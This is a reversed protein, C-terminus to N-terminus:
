TSPVLRVPVGRSAAVRALAQDATALAIGEREALALYVCDPLKHGLMLSLRLAKDILFEDEALRLAGLRVMELFFAVADTAIALEITGEVVKRRLASATEALLLRPATWEIRGALMARAAETGPEEVVWRVAVSADLVATPAEAGPM